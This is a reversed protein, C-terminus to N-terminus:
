DFPNIIFVKWFKFMFISIKLAILSKFYSFGVAIWSFAIGIAKFFLSIIPIAFLPVPFLQANKSGIKSSIM